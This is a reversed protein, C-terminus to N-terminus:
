FSLSAMVGVNSKINDNLNNAEGYIGFNLSSGTDYVPLSYVPLSIKFGFNEDDKVFIDINAGASFKVGTTLIGAVDSSVGSKFDTDMVGGGIFISVYNNIEYGVNLAAYNLYNDNSQKDNVVIANYTVKELNKSEKSVKLSSAIAGGDAVGISLETSIEKEEIEAANLIGTTAMTLASAIFLSTIKKM